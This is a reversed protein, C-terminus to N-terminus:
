RVRCASVFARGEPVATSTAMNKMLDMTRRCPAGSTRMVSRPNGNMAWSVCSIRRRLPVPWRRVVAHWGCVLPSVSCSFLVIALMLEM